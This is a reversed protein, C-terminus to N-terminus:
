ATRYRNATGEATSRGAAHGTVAPLFGARDIALLAVEGVTSITATRRVDRSLAIEGFSEGGGM